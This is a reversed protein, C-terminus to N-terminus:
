SRGHQRPLVDVVVVGVGVVLVARGRRPLSLVLRAGEGNVEVVGAVPCTPSSAFICINIVGILMFFDRIGILASLQLQKVNIKHFLLATQPSCPKGEDRKLIWVSM